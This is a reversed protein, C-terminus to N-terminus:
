NGPGLDLGGIGGAFSFNFQTFCAMYWLSPNNQCVALFIFDKPNGPPTRIPALFFFELGENERLSPQDDFALFAQQQNIL